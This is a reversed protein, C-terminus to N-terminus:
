GKLQNIKKTYQEIMFEYDADRLQVFKKSKYELEDLVSQGYASIIYYKHANQEGLSHRKSNCDRCQAHVNREDFKTSLKSRSICHGADMKAFPLIRRCTVCKCLEFSGTTRKADRMRVYLSFIRWLKADLDIKKKPKPVAAM